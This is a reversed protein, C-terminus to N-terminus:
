IEFNRELKRVNRRELRHFTMLILEKNETEKFVVKWYKGNGLPDGWVVRRFPYGDSILWKGEDILRQVLEWEGGKFVGTWRARHEEQSATDSTVRVVGASDRLEMSSARAASLTAVPWQYSDQARTTEIFHLFQESGIAAKISQRVRSATEAGHGAAEADRLLREMRAIERRQLRAIARPLGAKHLDILCPKDSIAKRAM